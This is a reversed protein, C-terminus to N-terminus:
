KIKSDIYKKIDEIAQERTMTANFPIEKKARWGKGFIEKMAVIKHDREITVEYLHYGNYVSVLKTIKM